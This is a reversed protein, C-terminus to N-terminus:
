LFHALLGAIKLRPIFPRESKRGTNFFPLIAVQFILVLLVTDVQDPIVDDPTRLPPALYQDPRHMVPELLKDSLHRILMSPLDNPQRDPGVLDLQEEAGIV